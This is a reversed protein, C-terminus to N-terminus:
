VIRIQAISGFYIQFVHTPIQMKRSWAYAFHHIQLVVGITYVSLNSNKSNYEDNKLM